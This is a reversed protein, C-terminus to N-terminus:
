AERRIVRKLYGWDAATVLGSAAVAGCHFVLYAPLVAYWPAWGAQACAIAGCSVALAPLCRLATGRAAVRVVRARLYLSLVVFTVLEGLLTAFAAGRAGYQPILLWNAAVMVCATVAIAKVAFVYHDAAILVNGFLYTYVILISAWALIALLPAAPAYQPGFVVAVIAGSSLTLGTAVALFVVLVSTRMAAFLASFRDPSSAHLESLVPLLAQMTMLGFMTLTDIVRYAATYWGVEGPGRMLMLMFVDVKYYIIAFLAWLMLPYSKRALQGVLAPRPNWEVRAIRARCLLHAHLAKMIEAGTFICFLATLRLGMLLAAISAIVRAGAWAMEVLATYEMKEFARFAADYSTFIATPILSVCAILLPVRMGALGGAFYAVSLSLAVAAAGTLINLILANCLYFGAKQKERSIERVLFDRTGFGAVPLFYAIFVLIFSYTGFGAEGLRRAACIVLAISVATTVIRALVLFFTNRAVRRVISM